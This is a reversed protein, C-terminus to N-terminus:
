LFAVLDLVYFPLVACQDIMQDIHLRWIRSMGAVMRDQVKQKGTVYAHLM